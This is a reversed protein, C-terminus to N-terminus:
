ARWKHESWLFFSPLKIARVVILFPPERGSVSSTDNADCEGRRVAFLGDLVGLAGIVVKAPVTRIYIEMGALMWAM